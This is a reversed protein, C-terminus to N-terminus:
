LKPKAKALTENSPLAAKQVQKLEALQQVVDRLQAKMQALESNQTQLRVNQKQVENLLMPTLEDYRIGQIKGDDGRIVLEPYIKDVEEAILGYQLAGDPETKLHFTVPRLEHLKETAEGMPTIATKYRESSALVGLQGSSTVYVASGTLTSGYIGAIYTQTQTGQNGIRIVGSDSTLGYVQAGIDINYDGAISFGAAFGLATNYNGTSYFLAEVGSATNYIGITNTYLAEYGSATNYSGTTNSYLALGGFAANQTGASNFILAQSGSATNQFGTTNSILAEFGFATNDNATQNNYLAPYGSASNNTGTTNSFLAYAGFASNASASINSYLAAAGVASNGSGTTNSILAFAGSATNNAGITNASLVAYGSATNTGGSTNQQLAAQGMATNGATDSSVTDPPAASAPISFYLGSGALMAFLYISKMIEEGMPAQGKMATTIRFIM